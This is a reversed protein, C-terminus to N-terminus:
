TEALAPKVEIAETQVVPLLHLYVSSDSVRGSPRYEFRVVQSPELDFYAESFRHHRFINMRLIEHQDSQFRFRCFESTFDRQMVIWIKESITKAEVESQSVPQYEAPEEPRPRSFFLVALALVALGILLGVGLYMVGLYLRLGVGVVLGFVALWAVWIRLTRTSDSM